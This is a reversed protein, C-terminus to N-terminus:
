PHIGASRCTSLEKGTMGTFGQETYHTAKAASTRCIYGQENYHTARAVKLHDAASTFVPIWRRIMSSVPRRRYSRGTM